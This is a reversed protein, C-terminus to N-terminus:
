EVLSALKNWKVLGAAQRVAGCLRECCVARERCVARGCVRECCKRERCVVRERRVARERCEAREHYLVRERCVAGRVRSVRREPTREGAGCGKASAAQASAALTACVWRRRRM